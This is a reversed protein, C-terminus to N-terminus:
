HRVRVARATPLWRGRGVAGVAPGVTLPQINLLSLLNEREDLLLVCNMSMRNQSRGPTM